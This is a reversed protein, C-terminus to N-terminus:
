RPLIKAADRVGTVASSFSSSASESSFRPAEGPIFDVSFPEDPSIGVEHLRQLLDRIVRQREDVM